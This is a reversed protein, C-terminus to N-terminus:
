VMDNICYMIDNDNNHEWKTNKTGKGVTVFVSTTVKLVAMEAHWRPSCVEPSLNQCFICWQYSHTHSEKSHDYIIYVHYIIIHNYMYINLTAEYSHIIQLKHQINQPKM